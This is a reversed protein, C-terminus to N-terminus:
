NTLCKVVDEINDIIKWVGRKGFDSKSYNGTTVGISKIGAANATDIDILADGIYVTEEKPARFKEMLLLLMEPSPKPATGDILGVVTDFYKLLGTKELAESPSYRNSAVALIMGMDKLKLLTSVTNPFPKILKYELDYVSERYHDIWEPEARGWLDAFADSLPLAIGRLVDDRSVPKLGNRSAIANMGATIAESSDVITMDHDFIVLKTNM